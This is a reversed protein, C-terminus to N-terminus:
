VRCYVCCLDNDGLSEKCLSAHSAWWLSFLGFVELSCMSPSRFCVYWIEARHRRCSNWPASSAVKQGSDARYIDAPRPEHSPDAEREQAFATTRRRDIRTIKTSEKSKFVHRTTTCSPASTYRVAHTATRGMSGNWWKSATLHPSHIDFEKKIPDWTATTELGRVNSGHGLETQAYCGIIDYNLIKPM